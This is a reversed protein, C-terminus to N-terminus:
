RHQGWRQVTVPQVPIWGVFRAYLDGAQAYPLEGCAEILCRGMQAALSALAGDFEAILQKRRTQCPWASACGGCTWTPRIPQHSTM